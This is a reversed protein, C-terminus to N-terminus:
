PEREGLEKPAPAINLPPLQRRVFQRSQPLTATARRHELEEEAWKLAKEAEKRSVESTEEYAGALALHLADIIAELRTKTLKTPM